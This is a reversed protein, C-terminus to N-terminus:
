VNAVYFLFSSIGKEKDSLIDDPIRDLFSTESDSEPAPAPGSEGPIESGLGSDSGDSRVEDRAGTALALSEASDETFAEPRESELRTIIEPNIDVCCMSESEPCSIQDSVTDDDCGRLRANMSSVESSDSGTETETETDVVEPVETAPELTEEPSGPTAESSDLNNVPRPNEEGASLASAFVMEEDEGLEKVVVKTEEKEPFKQETVDVTQPLSMREVIVKCQKVAISSPSCPMDHDIKPSQVVSSDLLEDEGELVCRQMSCSDKSSDEPEKAEECVPSKPNKKVITRKKEKLTPSDADIRELLVILNPFSAGEIPKASRECSRSAYACVDQVNSSADNYPSSEIPEECQKPQQCSNLDRGPSDRPLSYCSDEDIFPDEMTKKEESETCEEKVSTTGDVRHESESTDTTALSDQDAEVSNELGLSNNLRCVGTFSDDLIRGSRSICRGNAEDDFLCSNSSLSIEGLTRERLSVLVPSIRRVESRVQATEDETVEMGIRKIEADIPLFDTAPRKRCVPSSTVFETVENEEQKDACQVTSSSDESENSEEQKQKGLKLGMDLLESQDERTSCDNSLERNVLRTESSETEEQIDKCRDCDDEKKEESTAATGVNGDLGTSGVEEALTSGRSEPRAIPEVVTAAFDERAEFIRDEVSSSEM